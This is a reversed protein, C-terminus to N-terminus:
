KKKRKWDVPRLNYVNQKTPKTQSYSLKDILKAMFFHELRNGFKKPRDVHAGAMEVGQPLLPRM